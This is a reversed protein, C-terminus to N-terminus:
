VEGLYYACTGIVHNAGCHTCWAEYVQEENHNIYVITGQGKVILHGFVGESELWECWEVSDGIKSSLREVREEQVIIDGVQRYMTIYGGSTDEQSSISTIKVVIQVWGDTRM